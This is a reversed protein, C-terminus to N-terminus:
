PKKEFIGRAISQYDPKIIDKQSIFRPSSATYQFSFVIFGKALVKMKNTAKGEKAGLYLDTLGM